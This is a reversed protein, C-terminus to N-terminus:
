ANTIRAGQLWLAVVVFRWVPFGRAASAPDLLRAALRDAHWLPSARFAPTAVLEQVFHRFAPLTAWQDFPTAFGIKRGDNVISPPLSARFAERLLRKTRGGALKDEDPLAFAFEVLDVDIFPSRIEIGQSM